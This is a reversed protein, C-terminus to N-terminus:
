EGKELEIAVNVTKGAEVTVDVTKAPLMEHWISLTYSGPPVDSISFSGDEGSVAHYPHEFALVYARMWTHGADCKMAIIGPKKVRKKIQLDKRPLALNFATRGGEYTGHTNHLIPDSNEIVLQAGVQITQVHPVFRCGKNDLSTATKKDVKKGSTIGEISVVVYQVRGNKLVLSEDPVEHGCTAEDKSVKKHGAAAAKGKLKVTGTITGGNTVAVEEYASAAGVGLLLAVCLVPITPLRFANKMM